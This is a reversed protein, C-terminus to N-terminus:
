SAEMLRLRCSPCLWRVLGYGAMVAGADLAANAWRDYRPDPFVQPVRRKLPQEAVEWGVALALAVHWPLGLVAYLAGAVVHLATYRDVLAQEGPGYQQIPANM